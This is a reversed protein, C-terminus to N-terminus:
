LSIRTLFLHLIFRNEALDAISLRRTHTYEQATQNRGRLDLKLAGTREAEQIRRLAGRLAEEEPTM